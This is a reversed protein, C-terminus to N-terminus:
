AIVFPAPRQGLMVLERTFLDIPMAAREVLQDAVAHLCREVTRRSGNPARSRDGIPDLGEADFDAPRSVPSTSNRPPFGPPIATWMVARTAASAPALSTRTELV